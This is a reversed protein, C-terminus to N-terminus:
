KPLSLAFSQKTSRYRKAQFDKLHVALEFSSSDYRVFCINRFKNVIPSNICLYVFQMQIELTIKLQM